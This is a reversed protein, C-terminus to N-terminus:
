VQGNYLHLFGRILKQKYLNDAAVEMRRMLSMQRFFGVMEEKTSTTTLAPTTQLKHM